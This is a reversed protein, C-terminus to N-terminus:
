WTKWLNDVPTRARRVQLSHAILCAVCARQGRRRHMAFGKDTGHILPQHQGGAKRAPEVGGYMDKRGRESLGGWIGFRERYTLAYSLCENIVPCVACVDKAPRADEGREPYFNVHAHQPKSCEAADTWTV